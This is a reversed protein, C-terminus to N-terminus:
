HITVENSWIVFNSDPGIQTIEGVMPLSLVKKIHMAIKLKENRFNDKYYTLIRIDKTVQHHPLLLLVVPGNKFVIWYEAALAFKKNDLDYNDWWSASMSQYKLTDNTNNILTLPCNTILCKKGDFVTDKLPRINAEVINLTYDSRDAKEDPNTFKSSNTNIFSSLVFVIPILILFGIHKKM